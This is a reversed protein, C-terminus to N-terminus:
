WAILSRHNCRLDHRCHARHRAPYSTPQGGRDTPCAGSQENRGGNPKQNPEAVMGLRRTLTLCAEPRPSRRYPLRYRFASRLLHQTTATHQSQGHTRSSITQRHPCLCLTFLADPSTSAIGRVQAIGFPRLDRRQYRRRPAASSRARRDDALGQVAQEAKQARPALPTVQRLVKRRPARDVVDEPLPLAIAIPSADM